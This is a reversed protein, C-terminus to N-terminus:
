RCEMYVDENKSIKNNKRMDDCDIGLKERTIKEDFINEFCEESYGHEMNNPYDCGCKDDEACDCKHAYDYKCNKVFPSKKM